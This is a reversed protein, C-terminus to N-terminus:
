DSSSEPRTAPGPWSLGAKDAAAGDPDIVSIVECRTVEESGDCLGKLAAVVAAEASAGCVIMTSRFEPLWAVMLGSWGAPSCWRTPYCDEGGAQRRCKDSACAIAKEPEASRCWSTTEGAQAFAIGVPASGAQAEAPALLAISAFLSLLRM